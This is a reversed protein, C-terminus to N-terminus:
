KRAPIFAAVLGIFLDFFLRLILYVIGLVGLVLVFPFALAPSIFALGVAAGVIIAAPIGIALWVVGKIFKLFAVLIKAIISM